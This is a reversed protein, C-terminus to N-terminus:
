RRQQRKVAIESEDLQELLRRLYPPMDSAVKFIPLARLLRATKGNGIQRKIDAALKERSSSPPHTTMEFDKTSNSVGQVKYPEWMLTRHCASPAFVTFNSNIRCRNRPRGKATARM